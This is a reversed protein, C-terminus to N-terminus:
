KNVANVPYFTLQSFKSYCEGTTCQITYYQEDETLATALHYVKDNAFDNCILGDAARLEIEYSIHPEIIITRQEFAFAAIENDEGPSVTGNYILKMKGTTEKYVSISYKKLNTGLVSFKVGTLIVLHDINFPFSSKSQASSNQIFKEMFDFKISPLSLNTTMVNFICDILCTSMGLHVAIKHLATANESTVTVTDDGATFFGMFTNMAAVDVEFELM